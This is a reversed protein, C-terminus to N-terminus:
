NGLMIADLGSKKMNYLLMYLLKVFNETIIIAKIMNLRFANIQM